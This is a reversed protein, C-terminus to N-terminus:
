LELYFVLAQTINIVPVPYGFYLVENILKWASNKSINTVLAGAPGRNSGALGRGYSYLRPDNTYPTAPSYDVIVWVDEVTTLNGDAAKTVGAELLDLNSSATTWIGDDFYADSTTATIATNTTTGNIRRLISPNGSTARKIIVATKCANITDINRIVETGHGTQIISFPNIVMSQSSGSTSSTCNSTAVFPTDSWLTYATTGTSKTWADYTPTGIRGQRALIKGSAVFTTTGTDIRVDDYYLNSNSVVFNAARWQDTPSGTVDNSHTTNVINVGDLYFQVVGGAALDFVYNITYWQNPNLINSPIQTSMGITGGADSINLVGTTRLVAQLRSSGSTPAESFFAVDNTPLADFFFRIRTSSQTAALGKVFTTRGQNSAIKLAYNGSSVITSQITGTLTNVESGDGTEFGCIYAVAM